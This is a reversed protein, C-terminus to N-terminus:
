KALLINEKMVQLVIEFHLFHEEYNSSYVLIDDFFVLVFKKLYPKFLTNMLSQLTSTNTLGFPMVLFNM